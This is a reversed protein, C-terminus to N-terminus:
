MTHMTIIFTPIFNGCIEFRVNNKMINTWKKRFMCRNNDRLNTESGATDTLYTGIYHKVKLWELFFWKFIGM